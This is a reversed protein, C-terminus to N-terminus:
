RCIEYHAVAFLIKGFSKVFNLTKAQRNSCLDNLFFYIWQKINQDNLGVIQLNKAIDLDKLDIKPLM